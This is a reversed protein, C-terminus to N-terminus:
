SPCLYGLVWRAAIHAANIPIHEKRIWAYHPLYDAM